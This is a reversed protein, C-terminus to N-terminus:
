HKLGVTVVRPINCGYAINAAGGYEMVLAMSPTSAGKATTLSKYLNGFEEETGFSTGFTEWAKKRANPEADWALVVVNAHDEMRADVCQPPTYTRLLLTVNFDCASRMMYRIMDSEMYNSGLHDMVVILHNSPKKASGFRSELRHPLFIHDDCACLMSLVEVKIRADASRGDLIGTWLPDPTSTYVEVALEEAADSSQPRDLMYDVFRRMLVSLNTKRHGCFVICGPSANAAMRMEFTEEVKAM